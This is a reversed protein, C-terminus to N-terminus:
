AGPIRRACPVGAQCLGCGMNRIGYRENIGPTFSVIYDRCKTKSHGEPTIAGGPCREACATCSGDTYFLCNDHLGPRRVEGSALKAKAVVSGLRMAKGRPTIFGDCLGFSGLGAAYAVHRQSWNTTIGVKEDNLWQFGPLLDPAVAQVDLRKLEDVLDVLLADRYVEGDLRALAWLESPVETQGANSDVIAGTFPLVISVVSLEEASATEGTGEAFAEAPTLHFSGIVQKYEGFLPDDGRVYGVLPNEYIVVEAYRPLRNRPDGALHRAVFEEIQARLGDQDAM